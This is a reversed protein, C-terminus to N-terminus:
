CRHNEKKERRTEAWRAVVPHAPPQTDLLGRLRLDRIAQELFTSIGILESFPKSTQAAAQRSSSLLTPVQFQYVRSIRSCPKSDLHKPIHAPFSKSRGLVRHCKCRGCCRLGQCLHPAPCSRWNTSHYFDSERRPCLRCERTSYLNNGFEM